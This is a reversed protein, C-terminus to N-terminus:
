KRSHVKKAAHVAFSDRMEFLLYGAVGASVVAMFANYLNYVFLASLANLIASVLVSWFLFKWGSRVKERLPRVSLGLLVTTVVYGALMLVASLWAGGSMASYYSSDFAALLAPVVVLLGCASVVAGVLALWWINGALWQRSPKSLHPVNKYWGEIIEELEFKRTM